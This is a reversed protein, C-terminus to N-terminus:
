EPSEGSDIGDVSRPVGPKTRKLTVAKECDPVLGDGWTREDDAEEFRFGDDKM